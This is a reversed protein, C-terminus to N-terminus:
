MLLQLVVSKIVISFFICGVRGAIFRIFIIVVINSYVREFARDAKLDACLSSWQDNFVGLESQRATLTGWRGGGTILLHSAHPAFHKSEIIIIIRPGAFRCWIVNSQDFFFFLFAFKCWVKTLEAHLFRVTMLLHTSHDADISNTSLRFLDCVFISWQRKILNHTRLSAITGHNSSCCGNRM